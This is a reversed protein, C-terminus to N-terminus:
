GNSQWINDLSRVEEIISSDLYNLLLAPRNQKTPNPMSSHLVRSNYLLVSGKPLSPQISNAKFFGDYMGQYCFDINYNVMQSKPVIGTAGNTKDLDYLSVIAQIGLFNKNFNYKKFRHPTDVHPNIWTSGANITVIDSAYWEAKPLHMNVTPNILQEIQIVEPWDMVFQSWWVSVNPLKEIENREAYKKNSSSARVPYLLEKKALISDILEDPIIKELILYGNGTTLQHKVVNM